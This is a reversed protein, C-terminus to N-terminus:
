QIVIIGNLMRKHNQVRYMYPGSALDDTPFFGTKNISIERIKKGKADFLIVTCQGELETTINFGNQHTPNPFVRVMEAKPEPITPDISVSNGANTIVFQGMQNVSNDTSFTVSGDTGAEAMDAQDINEWVNGDANETRRFLNFTHPIDQDASTVEGVEDFRIQSSETFTSSTGYNNLVWYSRSVPDSNPLQDPNLNIRTTVVEGNPYFGTDAFDLTIGTDDFVYSGGTNIELRHSVGGGVPATSIVREAGAVLAAHNVGSRDTIEGQMRNFQYYSILSSDDQPVKTLHRLDRIEDQSLSRDYICVEDILGTYNRSNWGKYSGIKMSGLEVEGLNVNHTSSEGNLYITISTPTAVLAVHSWQNPPVTLGSGWAWSGNLWHYGLENNSRFNLGASVDDNFIIGTFDPQFGDPKVWASFTVENTTIGMHDIQAYDGAQNLRLAYGPITDPECENSITLIDTLTQTSTGNADTVTLTVSYTGAESYVVKPQRIDSTSPNGGEFSWSWTAGNENLASHDSFYITDRSCYSQFRDMSIQASPPATEYLEAEYVSRNTGNRIKGERYFPILETSYTSSPLETNFIAWDGMTANRYYVSRRTGIYIGDNSGRQYVVNTITEGDLMSTSYTIWSNGGNSSVYIQKGDLATGGYPNNRTIWVKNPDNDSITIDYRVWEDGGLEASSPTVDTWTTGGDNTRYIKKTEWWGPYLTVYMVDPNSWAVEIVEINAEFTYLSEFSLGDDETVWLQDDQGVFIRNYSRPDFAFPADWLDANFPLDFLNVMRDGSLHKEGWDYYVKREDAYNVKGLTNDGGGTSVWGNEYVNHDKLLTGNHYTGGVLVDGDWFGAGFGWFDTGAIGLMRRQFNDGNDDSFFIGGDNAVWLENGFFRIDHIDAHVYNPKYSHSWASPCTFSQGGDNSIWLNVGGVYLDDANTPSVDFALDYYYQGGDDGGQDDWGMLNQNSNPDPVGAPQPGCCTRTWNEGADDSVYIGYLGSGGNAAGTLLAFVKNPAAPSVAIEARKQEDPGQVFPWGNGINSFSIGGDTSKYFETRDAIQKVSYLIDNNTPHYELEQFEGDEVKTFSNGGDDSRFLGDEACLFLIQNNNPHMVIDSIEHGTLQFTIDGIINWTNGGDTTKYLNGGGEFYVINDDTHDIELAIIGNILMDLNLATWNQGKDTSKWLGATATGAYMVDPNSVSQEVTYVHAAGAAYSRAESGKDFDFPGICTWPSTPGRLAKQAEIRDLYEKNLRQSEQWSTGASYNGNIDRKLVRKLRKFYQTHENKKFPYEKYYANYAAEIAGIDPQDQYMLQVWEPLNPNNVDYKKELKQASVSFVLFLFFCLNWYAKM